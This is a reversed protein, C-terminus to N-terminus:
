RLGGSLLYLCAWEMRQAARQQPAPLRPRPTAPAFTTPGPQNLPTQQGKNYLSSLNICLSKYIMKVNEMKTEM